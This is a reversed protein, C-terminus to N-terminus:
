EIVKDEDDSSDSYNKKYKESNKYNSSPAANEKKKGRSPAEEFECDWSTVDCKKKEPSVTKTWDDDSEQDKNKYKKAQQCEAIFFIYVLIINRSLKNAFLM